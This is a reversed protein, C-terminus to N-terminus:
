TETSQKRGDSALYAFTDEGLFGDAPTYSFSGDAQLLLSGHAPGRTLIATLVDGDADSDNRLVGQSADVEISGYLVHYTDAVITPAQNTSETVDITVTALNIAPVDAVSDSIFVGHTGDQFEAIFVVQGRDNFASSRGDENGSGGEFRLARITRHDGPAVEIIGGERAILRLDGSLDQAWIGLDDFDTSLEAMFALQGHANLVMTQFKTLREGDFMGPLVDSRSVVSGMDGLGSSYLTTGTSYAVDGFRNILLDGIAGGGVQTLVGNRDVLVGGGSVFVIDGANNM